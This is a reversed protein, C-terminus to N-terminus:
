WTARKAPTKSSGENAAAEAAERLAAVLDALHERGSDGYGRLIEVERLAAQIHAEGLYERAAPFEPRIELARRYNAFAEDLRGSKRQCYALFNLLDADDRSAALAKELLPLAKACDGSRAAATAQESLSAAEEGATSPTPGRPAAAHSGASVLLAALVTVGFRNM